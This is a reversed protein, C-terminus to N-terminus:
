FYYCGIVNSKHSDTFMSISRIPIVKVISSSMLSTSHGRSGEGVIAGLHRAFAVNDGRFYFKSFFIEKIRNM